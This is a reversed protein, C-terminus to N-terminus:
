EKSLGEVSYNAAANWLIWEDILADYSANIQEKLQKAGYTQHPNVWTATFDQLWPRVKARREVRPIEKMMSNSYQLAKLIITYPDLDPYNVGFSGQGYHSPYIMPCIYDLRKILEKYDQGVIEADIKSTIITGFVDASVVVGKEHLHEYMYDIFETIIQTRSKDEPFDCVTDKMSEHFRVYDFQIEKFGLDVAEQCVELIYEWNKKNYPDLWTENKSTTFLTGDKKRVMRDPYDNGVVKDKFTVIRAIPYIDHQYLTNMVTEIDQIPPNKKVMNKLVEKDTKFTLYGNDDKVDVVVANIETKNAIEVVEDLKSMYGAPLYIAKVQEPEHHVNYLTQDQKFYVPETQEQGQKIGLKKIWDLPQIFEIPNKKIIVLGILSFIM